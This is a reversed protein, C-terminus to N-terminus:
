ARLTLLDEFMLSSVERHISQALEARMTKGMAELAFKTMSYPGFAPAALVGGISSIIIVRGSKRAVMQPVVKQTIAVTGFVNVDFIKRLRDMSVDAMPGTQGFGANNLIRIRCRHDVRVQEHFTGEPLVYALQCVYCNLM